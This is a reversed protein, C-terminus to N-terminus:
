SIYLYAVDDFGDKIPGLSLSYKSFHWDRGSVILFNVGLIDYLLFEMFPLDIKEPSNTFEEVIHAHLLERRADKLPTYGNVNPVNWKYLGASGSADYTINDQPTLLYNDIDDASIFMRGSTIFTTKNHYKHHAIEEYIRLSNEHPGRYILTLNTMLFAMFLFSLLHVFVAIKVPQLSMRKIAIAVFAVAIVFDIVFHVLGLLYFKGLSSFLSMFLLLALMIACEKWINRFWGGDRVLERGNEMIFQISLAIPFALFFGAFFSFRGIFRFLSFPPIRILLHNIPNNLGMAILYMIAFCILWPISRRRFDPNRWCLLFLLIPLVGFYIISSGYDRLDPSGELAPCVFLSALRPITLWTGIEYFGGTITGLGRETLSSLEMTPLVQIASLGAGFIISTLFFGASIKLRSLKETPSGDPIGIFIAYVALAIFTYVVMQVHGILMLTGTLMGALVLNVLPRKLSADYLMLVLPFFLVVQHLSPASDHIMIFPSYTVSIAAVFSALPSLKKRRFFIYCLLGGLVFHVIITFDFADIFYRLPLLYMLINGIYLPGSQGEAFHPYGQFLLPNWLPFYGSKFAFANFYKMPVHEKLIDIGSFVARGLTVQFFLIFPLLLLWRLFFKHRPHSKM